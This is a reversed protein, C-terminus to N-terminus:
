MKVNQKLAASVFFECYATAFINLLYGGKKASYFFSSDCRELIIELCEENTKGKMSPYHAMTQTCDTHYAPSSPLVQSRTAKAQFGHVTLFSFRIKRM